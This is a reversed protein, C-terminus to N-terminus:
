APFPDVSDSWLNDVGSVMTQALASTRPLIREYYFRALYLKAEYFERDDTGESLTRGAVQASRAFLYAYVAYGSYMLYDFCAANVEDPNEVAMAGLKETLSLWEDVLTSLPEIFTQM